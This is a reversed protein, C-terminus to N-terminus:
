ENCMELEPIACEQPPATPLRGALLLLTPDGVDACTQTLPLNLISDLFLERTAVECAEFETVSVNCQSFADAFDMMCSEITVMAAEFSTVCEQYNTECSAQDLAGGLLAGLLCSKEMFTQRDADSIMANADADRAVFAECFATKGDEDLNILLTEPAYDTNVMENSMEGSSEGASTGAPMGAQSGAADGAPEIANTGASAGASEDAEDGASEGANTDVSEGAIEGSTDGAFTGAPNGAGEGAMTGSSTGATDDSNSSSNTDDDCGGLYSGIVTWLVILIIRSPLKHFTAPSSNGRDLTSKYLGSNCLTHM